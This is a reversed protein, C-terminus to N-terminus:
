RKKRNSGGGKSDNLVREVYVKIGDPVIVDGVAADFTIRM